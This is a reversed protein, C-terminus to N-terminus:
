ALARRRKGRTRKPVYKEEFWPPNRLYQAARELLEASHIRGIIFKNCLFCLLGRLRGSRHDHDVSLARKKEPRGCVACVGGQASWQRTYEDLTIGYRKRLIGTRRWFAVRDPHAAQYLRRQASQADRHTQHWTRKYIRRELARAATLDVKM